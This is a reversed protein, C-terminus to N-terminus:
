ESPQTCGFCGRKEPEHATRVFAIGVGRPVAMPYMAFETFNGKGHRTVTHGVVYGVGAGFIVDSLYHRDEHLRSMAIYSALIYTPIAAKAGFHRQLVTAAAFSDAAHGSPFAYGTGTPRDRRVTYKLGQVIAESELLARLEDIGIHTSKDNKALRGAVYTAVAAAGITYSQGLYKGAAFFGTSGGQFHSNVKTDEGHVALALVGAGALVAYTSKMTPMAGFDHAVSYVYAHFGTRTVPEPGQVPAATNPDATHIEPAAPTPSPQTPSPNQRDDPVQAVVGRSSLGIVVVSALATRLLTKSM